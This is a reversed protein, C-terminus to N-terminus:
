DIGYGYSATALLLESASIEGGPASNRFVAAELARKRSGLTSSAFAEKGARMMKGRQGNKGDLPGCQHVIADIAKNLAISLEKAKIGASELDLPVRQEGIENGDMNVDLGGERSQVELRNTLATELAKEREKEQDPLLKTSLLIPLVPANSQNVSHPKVIYHELLHRIQAQLQQLQVNIM